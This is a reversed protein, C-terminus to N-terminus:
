YQPGCPQTGATPRRGPRLASPWRGPHLSLAAQRTTPSLATPSIAAPAPRATPGGAQSSLSGAKGDVSPRRYIGYPHPDRAHDYSQPVNSQGPRSSILGLDAQRATAAPRRDFPASGASGRRATRSYGAFGANMDIKKGYRSQLYPIYPHSTCIHTSPAGSIFLLICVVLFSCSPSQCNFYPSLM